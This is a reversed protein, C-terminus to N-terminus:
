RKTHSGWGGVVASYDKFTVRNDGDVDFVSGKELWHEAFSALDRFDAVGVKLGAVIPGGAAEVRVQPEYYLYAKSDPIVARVPFRAKVEFQLVREEGAALEDIYFIVKRGALEVKSVQNANVLADLSEQVVCFGTPVGVDVITMGSSEAPGHYRVVVTVQVIDDVEVENADYHVELGMRESSSQGEAVLVHFRRVLQFRTEGKGEACLEIHGGVPLEVMQLVDFNNADIEFGALKQGDAGKVTVVLTTDRRQLRAATMLAKLAMVTDQTSGFGGRGNQQLSLWKIAENAQAKELAILALAGYATTEIPLPEWHLGQEDRIGLELLRSVAREAAEYQGVKALAVASIALGYPQDNMDELHGQLYAAAASLVNPDGAGYEALGITVFATLADGGGSGGLMEKHHVFGVPEWSGDPKQYSEIWNAARELVREDITQVDRAGSFTGLVFATLWLSGSSDQDGFASFSGDERQYTLERQYGVTIFHEAKARVEPTLQDTAKLYRLVEVDPAFFIMNQEGCGFPMELLEDMGEISQAVLSPTVCLFVKGSGEVIDGPVNADLVVLEGAKLLGNTVWERGTGEPEVLLERRVADARQRSRLSVELEGWGLDRPEILFSVAGVSHPGITVTKVAEELLKFWGDEKLEVWVTQAEDLYNFIQVPVAIQEGRTVSYPLDLEGFFEQFVVLQSEGIGLGQEGTSVAHVRWTTISDPATLELRARGDPGTLLDAIWVWTEPFYQRIRAVEALEEGGGQEDPGLVPEPLPGGGGAGGGGARWWFEEGGPVMLDGSSVVQMGAREFVEYAGCPYWREHVEMQPEMFLRELEDFVQKMNLRNEHLGYVSEDVVALGVMAQGDAQVVLEVPEGPLVENADFGVALETTQELAVEFEVSDAAIENNPNIVYAVVRAKPVMEPAAVFEIRSGESVDSWITGGKAFVDYYVTGDYTRFVEIIVREGVHIPEEAALKLHLFSDSPSYRAYVTSSASAQEGGAEVESELEVWTLGEPASLSVRRSGGEIALEYTEEGLLGKWSSFYRVSLVAQGSIPRGDPDEAVLMVDFPQAPIVSGQECILQHVIGSEVIKLLKSTQEAHESSDKVVVDLQVTGAGGAGPTGSVYGAAPLEFKIEGEELRGTYRAFEDWVGIYRSARIEVEGEVDKGFFYRARVTGVIREDVRFYDRETVVKVEFRPLVYREVRVDVVGRGCGSEATIKWTGFNLESALDLEFAAVGYRNSRLQERHIKVGKGDTIEVRVDTEGWPKLEKDLVLVRGQIKQGPKYIPKDTEIFVVPMQKVQVTAELPGSVGGVDVELTYTGSPVDPVRFAAGLRGAENTSGAFVSVANADDLRFWVEVPVSVGSNDAGRTATVSVGAQGGVYLVKPVVMVAQVTDDGGGEPGKLVEQVEAKSLAEDYIRVDDIRGRWFGGTRLDAFAGFYMGGNAGILGPLAEEDRAAMMGDVYVSRRSGDWVVGVHHWQGDCITKACVLGSGFRSNSTLWTGLKGAGDVGLWCQDTGGGGGQSLIAEGAAGGKVWAFASFAGTGPDLVFGARVYDDVGDLELAGGFRGGDVVWAPGGELQASHGHGTYDSASVGGSEDLKWYAALGAEAVTESALMIVVCGVAVVAKCARRM